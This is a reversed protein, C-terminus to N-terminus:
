DPTYCVFFKIKVKFLKEQIVIGDQLLQNKKKKNADFRMHPKNLM